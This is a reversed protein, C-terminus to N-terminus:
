GMVKWTFKGKLSPCVKSHLLCIWAGKDLDEFLHKKCSLLKIAVLMSTSIRFYGLPGNWGGQLGRCSGHPYQQKSEDRGHQKRMDGYWSSINDQAQEVLPHPPHERTWWERNQKHIPWQCFGIPFPFFLWLTLMKTRSILDEPHKATDITQTSLEFGFWSEDESCHTMASIESNFNRNEKIVVATLPYQVQRRKTPLFSSSGAFLDRQFICWYLKTTHVM